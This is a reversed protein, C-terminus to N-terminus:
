LGGRSLRTQIAPRWIPQSSASRLLRNARFVSPHLGPVSRHMRPFYLSTFHLSPSKPACRTAPKSFLLFIHLPQSDLHTTFSTKLITPSLNQPQPTRVTGLLPKFDLTLLLYTPTSLSRLLFPSTLSRTTIFPRSFRAPFSSCVFICIKLAFENLTFTRAVVKPDADSSCDSTDALLIDEFSREILSDCHRVM